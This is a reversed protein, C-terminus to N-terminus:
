APRPLVALQRSQAVLRGTADWLEGDEELYGGAIARSRFRGRLWGAAPRARVHVTLQVTPVWAVPLGANFVAPPFADALLLLALTDVPRGDALRAWGRVVPEGSPDGDVFGSDEPHLRLDVRRGIGASALGRREVCEHPEPLQPPALDVRDPGDTGSLDTFTGVAQAVATDEQRATGAVTSHRRGLRGPSVEVDLDGPAAPTLYHMSVSLPDPRDAVERLGAAVVSLLYGGNPVGRVDWGEALTGRWTGAGIERVATAEDFGSVSGEAKWAGASGIAAV